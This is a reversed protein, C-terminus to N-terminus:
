GEVVPESMAQWFADAEPTGTAFALPALRERLQRLESTAKLKGWRDQETEARDVERACLRYAVELAKAGSPLADAGRLFRLDDQAAREAVGVRRPGSADLPLQGAKRKPM